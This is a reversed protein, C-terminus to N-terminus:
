VFIKKSIRLTSDKNHEGYPVSAHLLHRPGDYATLHRAYFHLRPKSSVDCLHRATPWETDSVKSVRICHGVGVKHEVSARSHFGLGGASITIDKVEAIVTRNCIIQCRKELNVIRIILCAAFPLAAFCNSYEVHHLGLQLGLPRGLIRQYTLFTETDGQFQHKSVGLHAASGKCGPLSVVLAHFFYCYFDILSYRYLNLTIILHYM